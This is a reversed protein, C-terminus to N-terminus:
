RKELWQATMRIIDKRKKTQKAIVAREPYLFIEFGEEQKGETFFKKSKGNWYCIKGDSKRHAIWGIFQYGERQFANTKLHSNIGYEIVSKKMFGTTAGNGNYEIFYVSKPVVTVDEPVKWEPWELYDRSIKVNENEEIFGTKEIASKLEECDSFDVKSMLETKSGIGRDYWEIICKTYKRLLEIPLQLIVEDLGNSFYRKLLKVDNQPLLRVIRQLRVENPYNDFIKKEPKEEIIKKILEIISDYFEFEYHVLGRKLYGKDDPLFDHAITIIYCDLERKVFRFADALITERLQVDSKKRPEYIVDDDGIQLVSTHIDILIINDNWRKKIWSCWTLIKNKLDEKDGLLHYNNCVDIKSSGLKLSINGNIDTYIFNGYLYTKSAIMSYLDIVVWDSDSDAVTKGITHEFQMKTNLDNINATEEFVGGPYKVPLASSEYVPVHFFYNNRVLSEVITIRENLGTNSVCSGYVDVLIPTIVTNSKVYGLAESRTKGHMLAYYYGVNHVNIVKPNVGALTYYERVSKLLVVPVVEEQFAIRFYNNIHENEEGSLLGLYGLAVNKFDSCLKLDNVVAEKLQKSDKETFDEIEKLRCFDAKYKIVFERPSSLVMGDTFIEINLFCYFAKYLITRFQYDIYRDLSIDFKPAKDSLTGTAIYEDIALSVNKYFGTEFIETNLLYGKRKRIFYFKSLSIYQAGTREIFEQELRKIFKYKKSSAKKKYERLQQGIVFFQPEDVGILLIRQESFFQNVTELFDLFNKEMSGTYSEVPDYLEAVKEPISNAGKYTFLREKLDYLFHTVSCLDLILYDPNNKRVRKFTEYSAENSLPSIGIIEGEIEVNLYDKLDLALRSGFLLCSKM